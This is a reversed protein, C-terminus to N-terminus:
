GPLSEAQQILLKEFEKIRASLALIEKQVLNATQRELESFDCTELANKLGKQATLQEKKIKLGHGNLLAYIQHILTVKTKVWPDRTQAISLIQRV